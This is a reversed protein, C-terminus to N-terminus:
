QQISSWWCGRYNLQYLVKWQQVCMPREFNDRRVRVAFIFWTCMQLRDYFTSVISQWSSSTVGQEGWWFRAVDAEPPEPHAPRRFLWHVRLSPV